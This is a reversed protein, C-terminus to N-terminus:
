EEREYDQMAWAAIPLDFVRKPQAAKAAEYRANLAALKREIEDCEEPASNARMSAVYLRDYARRYQDATM